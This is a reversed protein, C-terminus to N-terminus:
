KKLIGIYESIVGLFEPCKNSRVYSKSVELKRRLSPSVGGAASADSCETKVCEYNLIAEAYVHLKM